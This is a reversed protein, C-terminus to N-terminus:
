RNKGKHKKNDLRTTTDNPLYGFEELARRACNNIDKFRDAGLMIGGFWRSVIVVANRVQLVGAATEGDDDNDEMVTGNDTVIRYAMINHTARAIKKNELLKAIVARVQHTDHVTAIHAIFVSKRDVLPDSSSHIEPAQIPSSLKMGVSRMTPRDVGYAEEQEEQKEELPLLFDQKEMDETDKKDKSHTEGTEVTWQELYDRLWTLWEFVVVSGPVFLQTFAATMTEYTATDIKYAGFYVSVIEFMPMDHSPYSAPLFLRMVFVRPSKLHPQDQDLHLTCLYANTASTDKSFAEPGFIAELALCEEEQLSQNDEM